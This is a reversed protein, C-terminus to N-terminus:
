LEHAKPSPHSRAMPMLCSIDSRMKQATSIVSVTQEPHSSVPQRNKSSLDQCSGQAAASTLAIIRPFRAGHRALPCTAQNTPLLEKLPNRTRGLSTEVFTPWNSLPHSPHPVGELRAAKHVM